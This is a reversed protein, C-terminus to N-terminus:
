LRRNNGNSVNKEYNYDSNSDIIIDYPINSFILRFHRIGTEQYCKLCENVTM